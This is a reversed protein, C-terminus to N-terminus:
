AACILPSFVPGESQESQNTCFLILCFCFSFPPRRRGYVVLHKADEKYHEPFYGASHHQGAPPELVVVGTETVRSINVNKARCSLRKGRDEVMPTFRIVGKTENWGATPTQTNRVSFIVGFFRSHFTYGLAVSLLLFADILFISDLGHHHAARPVFPTSSYAM